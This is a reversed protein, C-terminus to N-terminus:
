DYRIRPDVAALGLDALLNGVVLVFSYFLMMAALLASDQREIAQKLLDGYTPIGFIFGVMLANVLVTPLTVGITSILPNLANRVAHKHYVQRSNLGKGWASTIYPQLITDMMSSRFVRLGVTFVPLGVIFWIPIIHVICSGFKAWSMPCGEFRWGCIGWLASRSMMPDIFVDLFWLVLGALVFGPMALSPMGVLSLGYYLWKGQRLSTVVGLPIAMLWAVVLSTGCILFSNAIEGGSRLLYSLTLEFSDGPVRTPGLSCGFSGKSVIAWIWSAFQVIWPRDLGHEVLIQHHTEEVPLGALAIAFKFRTFYDGPLISIIAFTIFASWILIFVSLLMRKLMYITM